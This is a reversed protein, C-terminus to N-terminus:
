AAKLTSTFARWHDRTLAVFFAKAKWHAAPVPTVYPAGAYPPERGVYSYLHDHIWDVPYDSRRAVWEPWDNVWPIGMPNSRLLEGKLFPVVRRRLMYRWDLHMPNSPAVRTLSSGHGRGYLAGCHVGEADLAAGLALEGRVVIEKKTMSAFPQDFIRRVAPSALVTADLHVFWSQLHRVGQASEVMGWAEFRQNSPRLFHRIMPELPWLPGYVSDNAFLVGPAGDAHGAHLLDQWAGFDIGQNPRCVVEAAGAAKVAAIDEAPPIIGSTAVVVRYGCAALASVYHAVHPRIRGWPDFHAFLCVPQASELM